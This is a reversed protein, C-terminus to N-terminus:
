KFKPWRALYFLAAHLAEWHFRASLGAPNLLFTTGQVGAEIDSFFLMVCHM